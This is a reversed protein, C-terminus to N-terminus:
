FYGFISLIALIHVHGLLLADWKQLQNFHIFEFDSFATVCLPCKCANKTGCEQDYPFTPM